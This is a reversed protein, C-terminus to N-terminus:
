RHVFNFVLNRMRDTITEKEELEMENIGNLEFTLGIFEHECYPCNKGKSSVSKGCDHCHIIM